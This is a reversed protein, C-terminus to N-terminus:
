LNIFTLTAEADASVLGDLALIFTNGFVCLM